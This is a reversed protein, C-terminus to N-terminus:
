ATSGQAITSEFGNLRAYVCPAPKTNGPSNSNPATTFCDFGPRGSGGNFHGQNTVGNTADVLLDMAGATCAADAATQAAQRRFWRSSLDIAFAMAGFLFIGLGLVVFLMAQGSQRTGRRRAFKKTKM